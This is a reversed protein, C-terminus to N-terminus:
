RFIFRKFLYIKKFGLKYKKYHKYIKLLNMNPNKRNIFIIIMKLKQYSIFDNRLDTFHKILRKKRNENEIKEIKDKYQLFIQAYNENFNKIDNEIDKYINWYISEYKIFISDFHFFNYHNNDDSLDSSCYYCSHCTYCQLKHVCCKLVKNKNCGCIEWDKPYDNIYNKSKNLPLYIKYSLECDSLHKEFCINCFFKHCVGCCYESNSKCINCSNDCINHM